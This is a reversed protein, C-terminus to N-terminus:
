IVAGKYDVVGDVALHPWQTLVVNAHRRALVGSLSLEEANALSDIWLTRAGLWRGMRIAFYGPAAGTTVVTHPRERILIWLIQFALILLRLKAKRNAETVVYFRQGAVTGRYGEVTSVFAVDVDGLANRLRLLQIWHGGRSAVFLARKSKPANKNIAIM